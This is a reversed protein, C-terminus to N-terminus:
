GLLLITILGIFAAFTAVTIVLQLNVDMNINAKEPIYANLKKAIFSGIISDFVGITASAFVGTILNGSKAAYFAVAGYILISGFTLYVYKFKLMRSLVAGIADFLAVVIFGILIVKISEM